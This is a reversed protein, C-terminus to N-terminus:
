LGSSSRSASALRRAEDFDVIDLSVCRRREISKARRSAYEGSAVRDRILAEAMEEPLTITLSTLGM